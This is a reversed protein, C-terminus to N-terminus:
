PPAPNEPVTIYYFSILIIKFVESILQKIGHIAKLFVVRSPVLDSQEILLKLDSCRKCSKFDLMVFLLQENKVDPLMHVLMELKKAQSGCGLLECVNAVQRKKKKQV